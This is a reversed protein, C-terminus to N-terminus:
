QSPSVMSKAMPAASAAKLEQWYWLGAVMLAVLLLGVWLAPRRYWVPAAPEALLTALDIETETTPAPSPPPAAVVAPIPTSM